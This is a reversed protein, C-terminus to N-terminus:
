RIREPEAKATSYLFVVFALAFGIGAIWHAPLGSIVLLTVINFGVLAVMWYKPRAFVWVFLSTLVIKLFFANSTYVNDPNLLYDPAIRRSKTIGFLASSQRDVEDGVAIFRGYEKPVAFEGGSTTVVLEHPGYGDVMAGSQISSIIDTEVVSPLYFDLLLLGSLMTLIAAVWKLAKYLTPHDEKRLERTTPLHYM